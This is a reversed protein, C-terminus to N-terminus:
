GTMEKCAVRRYPELDSFLSCKISDSSFVIWKAQRARSSHRAIKM